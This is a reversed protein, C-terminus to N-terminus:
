GVEEGGGAGVGDGKLEIGKDQGRNARVREDELEQDTPLPIDPDSAFEEMTRMVLDVSSLFSNTALRLLRVTTAKFEVILTEEQTSISRQVFTANQERDVQLARMATRAHEPNYFPIQLTVTHWQSSSPDSPIISTM